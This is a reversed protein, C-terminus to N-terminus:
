APLARGWRPRPRGPTPAPSLFACAGGSATYPAAATSTSSTLGQPTIPPSLLCFHNHPYSRPPAAPRGLSGRSRTGGRAGPGPWVAAPVRRAAHRARPAAPGGRRRAGAGGLPPACRGGQGHARRRRGRIDPQDRDPRRLLGRGPRAGPARARRPRGKPPPTSAHARAARARAPPNPLRARARRPPAAPARAPHPLRPPGGGGPAACFERKAGRREGVAAWKIVGRAFAMEGFTVEAGFDACLRRSRPRRACPNLPPPLNCSGQSRPRRGRPARRGPRRRRRRARLPGPGGSRRSGRCVMRPASGSGGRVGRGEVGAAKPRVPPVARPLRADPARPDAQGTDPGAARARSRQFLTHTHNHTHMHTHTHTHTRARTHTHTTHTNHTHMHAPVRPRVHTGVSRLCLVGRMGERHKYARHACVCGAWAPLGWRGAEGPVARQAGAGRGAAAAGGVGAGPRAGQDAARRRRRGRGRPDSSRGRGRRPRGRQLVGRRRATTRHRRGAAGAHHPGM